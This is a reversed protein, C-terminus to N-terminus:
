CFSYGAKSVKYARRIFASIAKVDEIPLTEGSSLRSINTTVSNVLLRIRTTAAKVSENEEGPAVHYMTDLYTRYISSGAVTAPDVDPFSIVESVHQLFTAGGPIMAGTAEFITMAIKGDGLVRQETFLRDLDEIGEIRGPYANSSEGM